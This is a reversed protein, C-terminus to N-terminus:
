RGSVKLAPLTMCNDKSVKTCTRLNIHIYFAKLIFNWEFGSYLDLNHKKYSLRKLMCM